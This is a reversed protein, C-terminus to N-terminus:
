ALGRRQQPTEQVEGDAQPGRALSLRKVAKDVEPRASVSVGIKRFFDQTKSYILGARERSAINRFPVIALDHDIEILTEPPPLVRSETGLNHRFHFLRRDSPHTAGFRVVRSPSVVTQRPGLQQRPHELRVREHTRIATPRHSDDGTDVLDPDDHLDQVVELCSGSGTGRGLPAMRRNVLERSFRAEIVELVLV